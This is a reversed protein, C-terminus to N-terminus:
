TAKFPSFVSSCVDSSFKTLGSSSTASTEPGAPKWGAPRWGATPEADFAGFASGNAFNADVGSGVKEGGDGGGIAVGATALPSMAASSTEGGVIGAIGLEPGAVMGERGFRDLGFEISLSRTLLSVGSKPNATGLAGARGVLVGSAFEAVVADFSNPKSGLVMLPEFGGAM